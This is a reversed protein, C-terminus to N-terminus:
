HFLSFWNRKACNKISLLFLQIKLYTLVFLGLWFIHPVRWSSFTTSLIHQHHHNSPPRAPPPPLPSPLYISPPSPTLSPPQHRSQKPPSNDHTTIISPWLPSSHAPNPVSLETVCLRFLSKAHHNSQIPCPLLPSAHIMHTVNHM